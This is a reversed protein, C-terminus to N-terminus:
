ADLVLAGDVRVEIRPKGIGHFRLAVVQAKPGAVPVRITKQFAWVFAKKFPRGGVEVTAIRTLGRFTAEISDGSSFAVVRIAVRFLKRELVQGTSDTSTASRAMRGPAALAADQRMQKRLRNAGAAIGLLGFGYAIATERTSLSLIEPYHLIVYQISVPVGLRSAFITLGIVDGIFIAFLTLAASMLIVPWTVRGVGRRVGSAVIIGLVISVLGSVYGTFGALIGWVLGGGIATMLGLILGM